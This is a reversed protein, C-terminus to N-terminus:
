NAVILVSCVAKEALHEGVNTTFMGVERRTSGIVMLDYSPSLKVLEKVPNGRRVVEQLAFKHVHSLERLRALAKETRPQQSEGSIIEPEEVVAVAVECDLQRAIDVAVGVAREARVTGNFPVLIREYPMTLRAVLVPAGLEHALGILRAKGLKQLFSPELPPTVVLGYNGRKFEARVTEMLDHEAHKVELAIAPPWDKALQKLDCDLAQCVLTVRRVRTNQALFLAKNLHRSVQSYSSGPLAILLGEGYALPFHPNACDILGCFRQFLDPKGLVILRDESAIPMDPEPFILEGDRVVGCLRHDPGNFDSVPRGMVRFHRAAAVEFVSASGVGLPTVEIGPDQLYHLISTATMSDIAALRINLSHFREMQGTSRVLSFVHKVGADAAQKAVAYNVDDDQTLALVYDHAKLKARELTVPSSADEVYEAVVNPFIAECAKVAETRKDILTVRWGSGLLKLLERTVRGGGCILIRMSSSDAESAIADRFDPLEM